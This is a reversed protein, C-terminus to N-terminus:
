SIVERKIEWYQEFVIIKGKHQSKQHEQSKSKSSLFAVIAYANNRNELDRVWCVNLEGTIGVVTV